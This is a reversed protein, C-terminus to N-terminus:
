AWLQTATSLLLITLPLESPHTAIINGRIGNTTTTIQGKETYPLLLRPGTLLNLHQSRSQVHLKYQTKCATVDYGVGVRIVVLDESVYNCLISMLHQVSSCVNSM